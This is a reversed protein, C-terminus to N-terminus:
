RRARSRTGDIRSANLKHILEAFADLEAALGAADDPAVWRFRVRRADFGIHKLQGVLRRFREYARHNGEGHHCAGPPCAGILVGDAGTNLAWLAHKPDVRASCGVRIPIIAPSYSLGRVGALETAAYGSWDCGFFIVRSRGDRGGGVLAQNIQAHIEAESDVLLDIAKTPCSVVCSGCGNCLFPDVAAVDLLGSGSRMSIAGNPCSPICSACGSCLADEVSGIFPLRSIKDAKVSRKARYAAMMAQFEVEDIVAPFHASGCVYIGRECFTGPRLRYEPQQYFGNADRPLRFLSALTDADDQPVLPPALVVQDCPIDDWADRTPDYYRVADPRVQPGREPSYHVFRIGAQRAEKLRSEATAEPLFLDRYLITVRASGNLAALREAQTLATGCCVRSCYPHGEDRQGACLIMVVDQPLQHCGDQTRLRELYQAFEDQTVVREGDYGLEGSPRLPQAGTGIIVAGAEIAFARPERRAQKLTITHCGPGGSAGEIRAGLFLEILPHERVRAAKTKLQAAVSAPLDWEMSDRFPAGMQEDREVLKVPVGEDALTLAATIGAAGAGLVLVQQPVQREVPDRRSRAAVKAAAMRIMDVAKRNAAAPDQRHVYACCERINTIEASLGHLRQAEFAARFHSEMVRASCGAIVVGGLDEAECRAAIIELGDPSCAFPLVSVEQIGPSEELHESVEAIDLASAIRGGCECIFVVVAKASM